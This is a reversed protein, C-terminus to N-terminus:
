YNSVNKNRRFLYRICTGLIVGQELTISYASWYIMMTVILMMPLIEKRRLAKIVSLVCLLVIICVGIYGVRGAMEIYGNHPTHKWIDGRYLIRYGNGFPFGILANIGTYTALIATWIEIRTTFTNDGSANFKDMNAALEDMVASGKLLTLVSLIGVVLVIIQVYFMCHFKKKSKDKYRFLILMFVSGLLAIWTTNYRNLILLVTMYLTQISLYNSKRLVLDKYWKYATFAAYIIIYDSLIPRDDLYFGVHIGAFHFLLLIVIYLSLWKFLISLKKEIKIWDYDINENAFFLISVGFYTYIRFDSLFDSSLGNQAIGRIGSIGSLMVFIFIFGVAINKKFKTGRILMLFLLLLIWFDGPYLSIGINLWSVSGWFKSNLIGCVYNYIFVDVIKSKKLIARYALFIFILLQLMGIISAM